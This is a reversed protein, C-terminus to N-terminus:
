RRVYHLLMVLMHTYIYYFYISKCTHLSCGEIYKGCYDEDSNDSCDYSGDCQSSGPISEGSRCEFEWSVAPLLVNIKVTHIAPDSEVIIKM